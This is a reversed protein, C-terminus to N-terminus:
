LDFNLSYSVAFKVKDNSRAPESAFDMLGDGDDDSGLNTKSVVFSFGSKTVSVNYDFYNKGVGNFAKSFDGSHYGAHLGVEIGSTLPILYDASTYYTKGFGFDEGPAEDPEAHALLYLSLGLNGIGLTGYIESFDFKANSDYNYYLYGLDYTIAGAAGAFGFYMDHEYSYEDDASYSVNSVWTGAYLGNASSYDLGGQVAPENLSQTLGRWLYNNVVTVNSTLEAKAPLSSLLTMAAVALVYPAKHTFYSNSM